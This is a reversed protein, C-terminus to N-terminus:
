RTRRSSARRRSSDAPRDREADATRVPPTTQAPPLDDPDPVPRARPLAAEEAESTSAGRASLTAWGPAARAIAEQLQADVDRTEPHLTIIASLLRNILHTAEAFQRGVAGATHFDDSVLQTAPADALFFAPPLDLAEAIKELEMERADVREQEIEYLRNASIRNRVLPERTALEEPTLATAKGKDNLDGALWRGAKLRRSVESREM